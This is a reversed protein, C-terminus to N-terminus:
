PAGADVEHVPRTVAVAEEQRLDHSAPGGKEGHVAVAIEIEIQHLAATQEVARRAAAVLEVSIAAVARKLVHRRFATRGNTAVPHADGGAVEVVIAGDIEIEGVKARVHQELVVAAAM